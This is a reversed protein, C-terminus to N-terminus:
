REPNKAIVYVGWSGVSAPNPTMWEGAAVIQLGAQALLLEIEPLFLYRMFHTEELCTISGRTKNTIFITYHVEVVNENPKLTPEAIRVVAIENNELRKVRVAPQESLVAPGYWFDFFFLGGPKLHTKATEFASLLDANTTQYSIVHFLSIVADVMQALRITRLDGVSFQLHAAIDAPLQAARNQSMALMEASRDIGHLAYGQRAFWEAHRGTGCGLELLTRTQPAHRHLLEHVFAAEGDYDKDRYLLNYYNAYAQFVSM